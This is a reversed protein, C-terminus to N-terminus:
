SALSIQGYTTQINVMAQTTGNNTIILQNLATSLAISSGLSIDTHRVTGSSNTALIILGQQETQTGNVVITARSTDAVTFTMSAGPEIIHDSFISRGFKNLAAGITSVEWDGWTKTAYTYIRFKPEFKQTMPIYVQRARNDSQKLTFLLGVGVTEPRTGLVNSDSSNLFFVGLLGEEVFNDINTSETDFICGSIRSNIHNIYPVLQEIIRQKELGVKSTPQQESINSFDKKVNLTFRGGRVTAGGDDINRNVKAGRDCLCTSGGGDLVYVDTCGKSLMVTACEDLTLGANIGTRGDCAMVIINNSSDFGLLMSPNRADASYTYENWYIGSLAMVASNEVIKAYSSFVNVCGAALMQQATISSNVVYEVHSRDAKIGIYRPNPNSYGSFSRDRLVVGKGIRTPNLFTPEGVDLSCDGNVTLTTHDAIAHSLPNNHVEDYDVYFEILNGDNDRVPVTTFYCDTDYLREKTVVIEDYYTSTDFLASKLETSLKEETLSGDQVTVAEPHENLWKQVEEGVFGREEDILDDVYEKYPDFMISPDVELESGDHGLSEIVNLTYKASHHEFDGSETKCCVQFIVPQALQTYVNPVLWYPGALQIPEMEHPAFDDETARMKVILYYNELPPANQFIVLNSLHDYQRALQPGGECKIVGGNWDLYVTRVNSM